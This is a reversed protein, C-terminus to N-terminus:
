FSRKLHKFDMSDICELKDRFMNLLKLVESAKEKTEEGCGVQLLLLLKQFAGVQLAEVVAVSASGGGTEEEGDRKKESKCLRWMVSVSFGTALNSVRLLKKVLVPVTLANSYAKELGEDCSCLEDLVALARESVRQESDVLTELLMSVLGMDVFKRTVNNQPTPMSAVMNYIISLSSNTTKACIPEKILKVLAETAGEIKILTKIKEQDDSSVIEKMVLVATRRGSLDGYKLFWVMSSLSCFSGLHSKAEEDFPVMLTLASLIEGLLQSNKGFYEESPQLDEAVSNRNEEFFVFESVHDHEQLHMPVSYGMSKESFAEFTESLARGAGVAVVRRRNRESEAALDKVKAVLELCGGGDGRRMAAELGALIGSVEVSSVPIRPTPIRDVGYSKNEVSWSQIMKRIAHNPIPEQNTILQNTIPCTNNGSEIWKEINERDYTIGTSLTVPDKMVDLSIPCRFNIPIALETIGNEDTDRNKAAGRAARRRRWSSIM